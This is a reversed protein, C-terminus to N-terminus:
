GEDTDNHQNAAEFPPAFGPQNLISNILDWNGAQAWLVAEHWGPFSFCFRHWHPRKFADIYETQGFVYLRKGVVQGQMVEILQDQTFNEDAIIHGHVELRPAQGLTSGIPEPLDPFPFNNPLPHDIFRIVGRQKTAYAPTNGMNTQSFTFHLKETPSVSQLKAPVISLYARLQRETTNEASTVLRDTANWLRWTAIGLICTAVGLVVTWIAIIREADIWEVSRCWTFSGWEKWDKPQACHSEEGAHKATYVNIIPPLPLSTPASPQQAIKSSQNKTQTTGAKDKSKRPGGEESHATGYFMLLVALVRLM